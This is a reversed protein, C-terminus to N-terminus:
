LKLARIGIVALAHTACSYLMSPLVIVPYLPAPEKDECSKSGARLSAPIDFIAVFLLWLIGSFFFALVLSAKKIM